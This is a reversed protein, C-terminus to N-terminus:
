DHTMEFQIEQQRRLSLHAIPPRQGGLTWDYAMRMQSACRAFPMLGVATGLGPCLISRIPDARGENFRLTALVAARFALYANMTKAVVQPARMTPASILWPIEPDETAVIHANGVPLEGAWQSELDAQLRAQLEWGFHRSYVLDIGGNMWGFSNAPSVIADATRDFIDGQSTTVDPCGSFATAWAAVMHPNIDRLHIHLSM